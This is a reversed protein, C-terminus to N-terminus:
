NRNLPVWFGRCPRGQLDEPTQLAPQSGGEYKYNKLEGRLPMSPALRTAAGPGIADAAGGLKVGGSLLVGRLALVM